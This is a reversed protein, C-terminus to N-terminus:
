GCLLGGHRFSVYGKIYLRGIIGIVAHTGDTDRHHLIAGNHVLKGRQHVRLAAKVIEVNLQGPDRRFHRRFRLAEQLKPRGDSWNQVAAQQDGM